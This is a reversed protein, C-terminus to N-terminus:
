HAIFGEPEKYIYYKFKPETIFKRDESINQVNSKQNGNVIKLKGTVIVRKGKLSDIQTATLETQDIYYENIKYGTKAILVGDFIGDTWVEKLTDKQNNPTNIGITETQGFSLVSINIAFLITLFKKM